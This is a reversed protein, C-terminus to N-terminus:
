ETTNERETKQDQMGTLHRQILSLRMYVHFWRLIYGLLVFHEDNSKCVLDKFLVLLCGVRGNDMAELLICDIYFQGRYSHTSM